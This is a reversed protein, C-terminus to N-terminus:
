EGWFLDQGKQSGGCQMWLNYPHPPSLAEPHCSAPWRIASKRVMGVRLFQTNPLLNGLVWVTTDDAGPAACLEPTFAVLHTSLTNPSIFQVLKSATALCGLLNRGHAPTASKLHFLSRTPFHSSPPDRMLYFGCVFV